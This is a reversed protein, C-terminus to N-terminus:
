KYLKHYNLRCECTIMNEDNLNRMKKNNNTINSSTTRVNDYDINEDDGEEEV